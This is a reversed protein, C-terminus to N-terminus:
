RHGTRIQKMKKEVINEYFPVIKSSNILYSINIKIKQAVKSYQKKYSFSLSIHYYM